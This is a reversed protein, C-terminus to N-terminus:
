KEAITRLNALGDEFKRGVMRDMDFFLHVIKALLPVEGIMAWTVVTGDPQPALTFEVANDAKRPKTMVLRLAVKAPAVAEQIEIRGSGSKNGDFEYAAGKGSAPGTYSGKAEPDNLVFPNWSNMARMDNIMPFIKDPPAKIGASRAVRFTDPRTSAYAVILAVALVLCGAVIGIIKLM